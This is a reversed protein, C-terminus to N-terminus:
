AHDDGNQDAPPISSALAIPVFARGTAAAILHAALLPPVANGIQRQQQERSGQWPYGTPFSQLAAAEDISLKRREDGRRLVWQSAAKTTLTGAPRDCSRVYRETRKGGVMSNQGSDYEWGPGLALADALTVHPLLTELLGNPDAAHTPTPGTVQRVRSALLVARLRNQPVGFNAANVIGTWTSYGLARLEHASQKWIPLVGSVQEWAIWEPMLRRARALPFRVLHGTKGNEREGRGATSFDTCPPSALYGTVPPLDIAQVDGVLRDHGALVATVSAAEDLEVGISTLGLIRAGEDWGGAGAFDDGVDYRQQAIDVNQESM